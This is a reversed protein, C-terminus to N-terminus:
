RLPSDRSVLAPLRNAFMDCLVPSRHPTAAITQHDNFRGIAGCIGLLGREEAGRPARWGGFVTRYVVALACFWLLRAFGGGGHGWVDKDLGGLTKHCLFIVLSLRRCCCLCDAVLSSRSLAFSVLCVSASLPRCFRLCSAFFRRSTVGMHDPHSCGGIGCGLAVQAISCPLPPCCVVPTRVRLRWRM